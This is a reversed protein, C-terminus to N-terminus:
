TILWLTLSLYIIKFRVDKIIFKFFYIIVLLTFIIKFINFIFLIILIKWLLLNFTYFKLLIM